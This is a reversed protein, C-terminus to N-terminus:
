CNSFQMFYDTDSIAPLPGQTQITKDFWPAIPKSSNKKNIYQIKNVKLHPFHSFIIHPFLGAM